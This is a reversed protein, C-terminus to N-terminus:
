NSNKSYEHLQETTLHKVFHNFNISEMGFNECAEKYSEYAERYMEM